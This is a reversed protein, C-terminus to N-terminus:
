CDELLDLYADHKLSFISALSVQSSYKTTISSSCLCKVLQLIVSGIKITMGTLRISSISTLSFILMNFYM